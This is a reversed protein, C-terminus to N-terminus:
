VVVTLRLNAYKLVALVFILAPSLLLLLVTCKDASM